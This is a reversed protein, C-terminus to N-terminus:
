NGTTLVPFKSRCFLDLLDSRADLAETEDIRAWDGLLVFNRGAMATDLARAQEAPLAYRCKFNGMQAISFAAGV